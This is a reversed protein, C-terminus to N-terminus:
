ALLERIRAILEDRPSSSSLWPEGGPPPARDDGITALKAGPHEREVFRRLEGATCSPLSDAIAILDPEFPSEGLRVVAELPMAVELVACGTARFADAMARRRAPTADVLVVTRVRHHVASAISSEAMLRAFPESAGELEVAIVDTGVRVVRGTLRLWGSIAADLRLEVDVAAGRLAEPPPETPIALLGGTCINALRAHEVHAGASVIVTGKPSIRIARRRELHLNQITSM